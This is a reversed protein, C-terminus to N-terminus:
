GGGFAFGLAGTVHAVVQAHDGIAQDSTTGAGHVVLQDGTEVLDVAGELEGGGPIHFSQLVDLGVVAEAAVSSGFGVAVDIVGDVGQDSQNVNDEM